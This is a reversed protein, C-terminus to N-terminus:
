FAVWEKCALLLKSVSAAAYLLELVLVAQLLLLFDFGSICGAKKKALLLCFRRHVDEFARLVIRKM